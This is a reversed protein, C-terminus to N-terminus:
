PPFLYIFLKKKRGLRWSKTAELNQHRFNSAIDIKEKEPM